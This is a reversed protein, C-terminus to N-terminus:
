RTLSIHAGIEVSRLLIQKWVSSNVLIKDPFFSQFNRLIIINKVFKKTNNVDSGDTVDAVCFQM